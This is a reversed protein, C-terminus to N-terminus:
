ATSSAAPDAVEDAPALARDYRRQREVMALYGAMCFGLSTFLSLVALSAWRGPVRGARM